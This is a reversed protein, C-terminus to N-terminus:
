VPVELHWHLGSGANHFLPRKIRGARELEAVKAAVSSELEPTRAVADVATMEKHRSNEVGGVLDNTVDDRFASTIRAGASELERMLNHLRFAHMWHRPPPFNMTGQQTTSVRALVYLTYGAGAGAGAAIAWHWWKM